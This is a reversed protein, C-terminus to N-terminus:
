LQTIVLTMKSMAYSSLSFILSGDLWCLTTHCFNLNTEMSFSFWCFLSSFFTSSLLQILCRVRGVLNHHDLDVIKDEKLYPEVMKPSITGIWPEQAGFRIRPM